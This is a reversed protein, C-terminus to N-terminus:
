RKLILKQLAQIQKNISAILAVISKLVDANSVGPTSNAIKYQVTKASTDTAGAIKFSGVFAGETTGVTLTYTKVGAASSFKDGGTPATIMTMGGFSYELAVGATGLTDTTNVLNGLSDKGTVTLTAIEGPAYAAKDMSITWTDLAGGCAVTIAKKVSTGAVSSIVTKLNLTTVGGKVCTFSGDGTASYDGDAASTADDVSGVIAATAAAANATSDGSVVKSALDNGASDQVKARFYGSSATKGVTLDKILIAAPVGTFKITKTGVSVGDLTITVTTTMPKDKNATGQTVWLETGTVGRTSLYAVSSQISPASDWNIVAGNTASAALVGAGTLSNGYVDVLNLNVYSTGANAVTSGTPEDNNGTAGTADDRVQVSSDALSLANNSCSAVVNFTLVEVASGTSTGKISVTGTGVTTAEVTVTDGTLGSTGYTSGVAYAATESMGQDTGSFTSTNVRIGGALAMYVTDTTATTGLTLVFTRGTTLTIVRAGATTDIACIGPSTTATTLDVDGSAIAAANAAPMAVVSLFGATLATVAVLSIRKRLTKTSM